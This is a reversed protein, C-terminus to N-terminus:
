NIIWWNFKIEKTLAGKIAVAFYNSDLQDPQGSSPVIVKEKVFLVKNETDSAPTIYVLSGQTLKETYIIVETKGAPIIGEGATANTRIKAFDAAMEGFNSGAIITEASATAINVKAFTANGSATLDGTFRASGTADISAVTKGDFGKIMMKGFTSASEESTPESEESTAASTPSALNVAFNGGEGQYEQAIIKGNVTLNGNIAVSGNDEIIMVGALLDIKGTGSPQIYLTDALTSITNETIAINGVLLHKNVFAEEITAKGQIILNSALVLDDTLTLQGGENNQFNSIPLQDNTGSTTPPTGTDWNEAQGALSSGTSISDIAMSKGQDVGSDYNAINKIILEELE